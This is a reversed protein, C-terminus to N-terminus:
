FYFFIECNLFFHVVVFFFHNVALAAAVISGGSTGSIVNPLINRDLLARVVGMHYMSLAGGGSLCLATTGLSHRALKFFNIRELSPFKEYDDHDAIEFLIECVEKKFEDILLKTGIRCHSYLVDNNIHAFSRHLIRRLVFMLQHIDGKRRLQRIEGLQEQVIDWDYEESVPDEKWAQNGELVDLQEGLKRWSEYNRAREFADALDSVRTPDKERHSFRCM